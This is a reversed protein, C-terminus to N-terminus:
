SGLVTDTLICTRDRAKSLPNLIQHQWLGRRRTCICSPDPTATATASALLQLEWKIGLRRYAVPASTFLFFFDNLLQPTGATAWHFWHYRQLESVCTWGGAQCLPNLIWHQWLRRLWPESRIGPRPVGYAMMLGFFFFFLHPTLYLQWNIIVLTSCM